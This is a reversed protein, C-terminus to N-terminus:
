FCISKGSERFAHWKAEHRRRSRSEQNRFAHATRCFAARASTVPTRHLANSSRCDGQASVDTALVFGASEHEHRRNTPPDGREKESRSFAYNKSVFFTADQRVSYTSKQCPTGCSCMSSKLVDRLTGSAGRFPRRFPSEQTRFDHGHPLVCCTRQHCPRHTRARQLETQGVDKTYAATPKVRSSRLPAVAAAVLSISPLLSIRGAHRRSAPFETAPEAPPGSV